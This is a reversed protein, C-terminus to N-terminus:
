CCDDFEDDLEEEDELDGEDFWGFDYDCFPCYAEDNGIRAGCGPCDQTGVGQGM